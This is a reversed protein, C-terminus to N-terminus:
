SLEKLNHEIKSKCSKECTSQLNGTKFSDLLKNKFFPQEFIMSLPLKSIDQREFGQTLDRLQDTGFYKLETDYHMMCCPIVYNQHTIYIRGDVLNPCIHKTNKLQTDATYDNDFRFEQRQIKLTTPSLFHIKGDVEVPWHSLEKFRPQASQIRFGCFGMAKSLSKIEDIQHQNHKFVIMKWVAHGGANIFARANKIITEYDLGVRYLHNTDALGDISFVIELNKIKALESWWHTNRISGNTTLRVSPRSPASALATILRGIHPHMCPDGKDGQIVVKKLLPMDHLQLNKIVADVNMHNLTLDPHLTGDSKFVDHHIINFRPCHPCKANCHSTPEFELLQIEEVKM